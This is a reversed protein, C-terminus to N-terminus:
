KVNEMMNRLRDVMPAGGFKRFKEEIVQTSFGKELLLKYESFVNPAEVPGWCGLCPLNHSPCAAGCGGRTLPGLCPIDALLLCRNERWKCETCVPFQYLDPSCDNLIRAVSHLFQTKDMPCGPIYHDIEVFDSCPKSEFPEMARLLKGDDGYVSQFREKWRGEGLKMSQIGGFCACTGMAVVIKSHARIRALEKKQRETTISGELFAIDVLADGKRSQAMPFSEIKARKSLELLETGCELIVLQEGSCGTFSHIAIKKTQLQKLGVREHKDRGLAHLSSRRHM